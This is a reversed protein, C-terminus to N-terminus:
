LEKTPAPLITVSLRCGIQREVRVLGAGELSALARYVTHRNLGFRRLTKTTLRVTASKNRSRIGVFWLASAVHWAKGPLVVAREVWTLPVPGGIYPAGKAPRPLKLTEPREATSAALVTGTWRFAELDAFPDTM